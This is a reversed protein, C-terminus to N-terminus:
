RIASSIIMLYENLHKNYVDTERGKVDGIFNIKGGLKEMRKENVKEPFTKLQHLEARIKRIYKRNVNPKENVTLGTVMQRSIRGHLRTKKHNLILNYRSLNESVAKVQLDKNINNGSFTLDDVYRSYELGNALALEKLDEDLWWCVINSLVPSTPAGTPLFELCTVEVLFNVISDPFDFPKLRFVNRITEKKISPYFNKIDMNLVFEKGSHKGANDIISRKDNEHEGIYGYCCSHAQKAYVGKLFEALKSQVQNLEKNPVQIERYGGKKKKIKFVEYQKSLINFEELFNKSVDLLILMENLTRCRLFNESKYKNM